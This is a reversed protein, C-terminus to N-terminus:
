SIRYQKIEMLFIVPDRLNTGSVSRGAPTILPQWYTWKHDGDFTEYTYESQKSELLQKLEEMVGASFFISYGNM